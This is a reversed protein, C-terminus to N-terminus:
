DASKNLSRDIEVGKHIEVKLVDIRPQILTLNAMEVDLGHFHIRNLSDVLYDALKKECKLRLGKEDPLACYQHM